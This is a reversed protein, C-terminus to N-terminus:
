IPSIIKYMNNLKMLALRFWNHINNLFKEQIFDKGYNKFIHLLM